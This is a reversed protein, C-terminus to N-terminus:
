QPTSQPSNSLLAASQDVSQNVSQNVSQSVSQATLLQRARRLLTLLLVIVLVGTAIPLTMALLTIGIALILEITAFVPNTLGVSISTSILRLMNNMGKTLGATGGGAIIALTWQLLPNVGSTALATVLTGAIVAAPTAITDLLHDLWPIYYGVVELLSAAALVILAQNTEIWDFQAPLDIHGVVAAVSLILFPVFLRFGAAASLGIGLLLDVVTEWNMM